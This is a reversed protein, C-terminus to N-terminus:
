TLNKDLLEYSSRHLYGQGTYFTRGSENGRRLQLAVNTCGTQALFAEATQILSGGIGTGRCSSSVFLEDIEATLGGHELSFVFVALLYGVPVHDKVAIWAVGLQPTSLLSALLATIRAEEYGEISEFRWYQEVLKSLAPADEVMARRVDAGM